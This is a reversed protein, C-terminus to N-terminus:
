KILDIIESQKNIVLVKQVSKAKNISLRIDKVARSDAIKTKRLDIIIYGVIRTPRIFTIDFGAAILVAVTELEHPEPYVDKPITISGKRWKKNM